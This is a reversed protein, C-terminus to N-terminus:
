SPGRSSAVLEALVDELPLRSAALSASAAVQRKEMELTPPSVLGLWGPVVDYANDGMLLSSEMLEAGLEELAVRTKVRGVLEHADDAGTVEGVVHVAEAVKFTIGKGTLQLEAGNLEVLGDVM